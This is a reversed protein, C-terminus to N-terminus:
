GESIGFGAKAAKGRRSNEPPSLQSTKEHECWFTSKVRVRVEAVMGAHRPYCAGNQDEDRNNLPDAYSV